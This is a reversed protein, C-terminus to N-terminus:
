FERVCCFYLIIEGRRANDQLTKCSPYITVDLNSNDDVSISLNLSKCTVKVDSIRDKWSNSEIFSQKAQELTEQMKKIHDEMNHFDTILVVLSVDIHDKLSTGKGFSGGEKINSINWPVEKSKLFTVVENVINRCKENYEESPLVHMATFDDLSGLTEGLLDSPRAKARRQYGPKNEVHNPCEVLRHHDATYDPVSERCTPCKIQRTRLNQGHIRRAHNRYDFQFLFKQLCLRCVISCQEPHRQRIHKTLESIEIKEDCEKLYCRLPADDKRHRARTHLVVDSLSVFGDHCINCSHAAM